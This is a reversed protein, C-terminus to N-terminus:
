VLGGINRTPQDSRGYGAGGLGFGEGFPQAERTEAEYPKLVPINWPILLLWYNHIKELYERRQQTTERDTM